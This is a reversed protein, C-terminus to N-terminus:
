RFRSRIKAFVHYGDKSWNEGDEVDRAHPARNRLTFSLNNDKVMQPINMSEIDQYLADRASQRAAEPDSKPKNDSKRSRGGGFGARGISFSEVYAGTDVPSVVLAYNVVHQLRDEVGEAAIAEVRDKVAKLTIQKKGERAM